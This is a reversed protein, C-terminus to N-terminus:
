KEKQGDYEDAPHDDDSSDSSQSVSWRDWPSARQRHAGAGFIFLNMIM